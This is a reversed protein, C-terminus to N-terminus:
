TSFDDEIYQNLIEKATMGKNPRLRGFLLITEAADEFTECSSINGWSKTLFSQIMFGTSMTHHTAGENIEPYGLKYPKGTDVIRYFRNNILYVDM